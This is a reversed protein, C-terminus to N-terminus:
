VFIKTLRVGLQGEIEILEGTAIPKNDSETVIEVPDNPRCGLEIIKGVRIKQLENLSMRRGGLLVRLNIMVNELSALAEEDLEEDFDDEVVTEDILESDKQETEPSQNESSENDIQPIDQPDTKDETEQKKTNMKERKPQGNIDKESIIEQVKISLENQTNGATQAFDNSQLTGKLYVNMGNGVFARLTPPTSGNQLLQSPKKVLVVDDKELFLLDNATIQTEGFLIKLDLERAVRCFKKFREIPKEVQFITQPSNSLASLFKIPLLLTVTGSLDGLVLDLIVEAGRENHSFNTRIENAIRQLSFKSNELNNNLEGLVNIALFEIITKEISSLPRLADSTKGAGGLVLDILASAFQANIAVVSSDTNSNYNINLFIQPIRTLDQMSGALNVESISLIGFNIEKQGLQTFHSFIKTLSKYVSKSLASPLDNIQNSFDAAQFTVKPLTEFWNSKIKGSQYKQKAKFDKNQNSRGSEKKKIIEPVGFFDVAYPDLTEKSSQKNEEGAIKKASTKM